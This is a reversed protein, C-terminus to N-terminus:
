GPLFTHAVEHSISAVAQGPGSTDCKPYCTSSYHPHTKINNTESDQINRLFIKFM